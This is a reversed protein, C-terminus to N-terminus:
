EVVKEFRQAREIAGDIALLLQEEPSQGPYVEVKIEGKVQGTGPRDAVRVEGNLLAHLDLRFHLVHAEDYRDHYTARLTSLGQNGLRALSDMASRKKSTTAELLVMEPGYYSNSRDFTVAEEDGILWAIADAVADINSLATCTTRWTIRHLGVLGNFRSTRLLNGFRREEPSCVTHPEKLYPIDTAFNCTPYGGCSV